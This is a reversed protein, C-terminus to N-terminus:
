WPADELARRDATPARPAHLRDLLRHDARGLRSGARLIHGTPPPSAERDVQTAVFGVYACADEAVFHDGERYLPTGVTVRRFTDRTLPWTQEFTAQWLGFIAEEHAAPQYPRIALM